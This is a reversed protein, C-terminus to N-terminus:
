FVPDSDSDSLKHASPNLLKGSNLTELYSEETMLIFRISREPETATAPLLVDLCGSTQQPQPQPDPTQQEQAM